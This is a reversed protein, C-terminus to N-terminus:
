IALGRVRRQISRVARVRGWIGIGNEHRLGDPRISYFDVRDLKAVVLFESNDESLTCKISDLVSSPQHYTTVVKMLITPVGLVVFLQGNVRSVQKRLLGDFLRSGERGCHVSM